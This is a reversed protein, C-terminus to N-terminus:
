WSHRARTTLGRKGGEPGCRTSPGSESKALEALAAANTVLKTLWRNVARFDEKVYILIGDLEVLPVKAARGSKQSFLSLDVEPGNVQSFFESGM